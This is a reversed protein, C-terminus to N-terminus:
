SRATASSRCPRNASAGAGPWVDPTPPRVLSCVTPGGSVVETETAVEFGLRRYFALNLPNTSVLWAPLGADDLWELKPELLSRGVGRRQAEPSVAVFHLTWHPTAPLVSETAGMAVMVPRVRAGLHSHLLRAFRARDGLSLLAVGPPTWIAVAGPGASASVEARGFACSLILGFTELLQGRRQAEDRYVWKWWPDDEFGAALIEARWPVDASDGPDVRGLSPAGVPPSLRLAPSRAM